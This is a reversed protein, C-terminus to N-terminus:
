GRIIVAPGAEKHIKGAAARQGIRGSSPQGGAGFATRTDIRGSETGFVSGITQVCYEWKIIEEPM